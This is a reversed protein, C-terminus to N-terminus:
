SGTVAIQFEIKAASNQILKLNCQSPRIRILLLNCQFWLNPNPFTEARTFPKM